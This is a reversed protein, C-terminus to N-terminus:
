VYYRPKKQKVRSDLLENAMLVGDLIQRERIFTSQNHSILEPLCEKFRCALLKSLLKYLFTVLNIPIYDSVAFADLKKPILAILTANLRWDFRGTAHFGQLMTTIENKMFPWCQQLVGMPFGDVGSAKDDLMSTLVAMVEFEAFSITLCSNQQESIQAFTLSGLTPRPRVPESCQTAFHTIIHEIINHEEVLSGEIM